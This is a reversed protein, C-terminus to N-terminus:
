KEIEGFVVQQEIQFVNKISVRYMVYLKIFAVMKIKIKTCSISLKYAFNIFIKKIGISKFAKQSKKNGTRYKLIFLYRSIIITIIIILIM